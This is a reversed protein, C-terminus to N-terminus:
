SRIRADLAQYHPRSKLMTFGKGPSFPQQISKWTVRQWNEPNSEHLNWGLYIASNWPAKHFFNRNRSAMFLIFILLAVSGAELLAMEMSLFPNSVAQRGVAETIGAVVVGIAISAGLEKFTDFDTYLQNDHLYQLNPIYRSLMETAERKSVVYNEFTVDTQNEFAKQIKVLLQFPSIVNAEFLHFLDPENKKFHTIVKEKALFQEPGDVENEIELLQDV